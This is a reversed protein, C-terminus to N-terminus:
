PMRRPLIWGATTVLWRIEGVLFRDFPTDRGDGPRRNELVQAYELLAASRAWLAVAEANGSVRLKRRVKGMCASVWVRSVGVDEAVQEHTKGAALSSLIAYERDTIPTRQPEM